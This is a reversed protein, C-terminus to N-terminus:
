CNALLVQCHHWGDAPPMAINNASGMCSPMSTKKCPSGPSVPVNEVDSGGVTVNICEGEVSPLNLDPPIPRELLTSLPVTLTTTPGGAGFQNIGCDTDM